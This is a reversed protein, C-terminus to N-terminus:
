VLGALAGLLYHRISVPHSGAFSAFGGMDIM